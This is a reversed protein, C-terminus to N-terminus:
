LCQQLAKAKRGRKLRDADTGGHDPVEPGTGPECSRSCESGPLRFDCSAAESIRLEPLFTDYFASTGRRSGRGSSRMGFAAHGAAQAEHGNPGAHGAGGENTGSLGAAYRGAVEYSKRDEFEQLKGDNWNSVPRYYGTIRSYVETPKGCVPCVKQEGSLYGHEECVSYVPSLTFYPLRYNEAVARVLQMAAKWDPLKEGLFCHFVTGSTYKTQLNDQIDLAEFVDSTFGVPLHSSNTYYPTEGKKGATIIDPYLVRDHKALRYATSEAPTAELNFLNGYEEQYDKLKERMFDLVKATWAAAKPHSLDEGIWNANLCAENMGVLGLTSFHNVFGQPLYRRTYPYLGMDM